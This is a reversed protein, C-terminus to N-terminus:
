KSVALNLRKSIENRLKELESIRGLLIITDDDSQMNEKLEKRLLNIHKELVRLKLTLLVKCVEQELLRVSNLITPTSMDYRENWHASFKIEERELYDIAFRSEAEDESLTFARKIDDQDLSIKAFEAYHDYIKSLLPTTIIIHDNFLEDFVYQDVRVKKVMVGNQNDVTQSVSNDAESNPNCMTQKPIPIEYLGYKLLLLVVGKEAEYLYDIDPKPQPPSVPPSSIPIEPSSEKGNPSRLIRMLLRKLEQNLTTEPLDFLRACEKIYFSRTINDNVKAISDLMDHVMKSRKIPDQGAEESLIKAKFLLFDTTNNNLYDAVESDRHNKAFSDPDEGDPLLCVKVNLDRDLLLNIGRLAAKIGARDGDYLVTINKTQRSLIKTQEETLSTGSSAVVNEVGAEFMSIVDTYGEVLYVNDRKRIAGKALSIDFLTESKHYIESEPSNFYKATNGDNQLVRGGFGIVKGLINHIPFIVRGHYFDYLRGNQGKKTLGLEILFEEKYGKQLAAKTFTDWGQEQPCYGLHFQNITSQKFGRQQFYGMGILRGEETHHLQDMFFQEAFENVLYLSDRKSRQEKEESSEQREYEIAISYKKALFELAEPYSLKQHEMLFKVANGKADCVFCKYIGLHPSVHMSPNRDDHFPCVGVYGSGQRKLSVFEGVVEEIKATAMIEDKSRQTIFPM